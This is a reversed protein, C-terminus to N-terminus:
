RSLKLQNQSILRAYPSRAGYNCRRHNNYLLSVMSNQQQRLNAELPQLATKRVNISSETHTHNLCLRFIRENEVNGCVCKKFVTTQSLTISTLLPRTNNQFQYEKSKNNHNTLQSLSPFNPICMCM